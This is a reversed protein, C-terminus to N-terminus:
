VPSFSPARIELKRKMLSTIRDALTLSALVEQRKGIVSEFNIGFPIDLEGCLDMLNSAKEALYSVSYDLFDDEREIGRIFDEPISVGLWKMFELAKRTGVPSFTFILPKEEIGRQISEKKYARLVKEYLSIDYVCQSIFFDAGREIKSLLRKAESNNESHREGILVGGTPNNYASAIEYARQLSTKGSATRSPSGVFVFATEETEELLAQIEDERYKGTVLYLLRPLSSHGSLSSSYDVPNMAERYLFTRDSDNRGKEEQVDYLSIGHCDLTEIRAARRKNLDKLKAPDTNLAPPTLSYLVLGTERNKLKKVLENM